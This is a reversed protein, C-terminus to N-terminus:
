EDEADMYKEQAVFPDRMHEPTSGFATTLLNPGEGKSPIIYGIAKDVTGMIGTMSAKDRVNLTHFHVLSFDEVLEVIAANLRQYRGSGPDDDLAQLLYSLDLVETYFDLNFRLRGFSEVLDIKSLINVHPMELNLMTSLSTLLVSIFKGADNCYHSDVLLVTCMRFQWDQSITLLLNRIAEHHTYLEVQGPCDFLFFRESREELRERLWDKNQDLFEMCYLLSGNPGLALREMVDDVQILERIDIDALVSENAPDLNVIAVSRGLSSLFERMALCYTTKGSGPPGIVFEGFASM